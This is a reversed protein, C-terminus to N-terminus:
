YLVTGPVRIQDSIVFAVLYPIDTCAKSSSVEHGVQTALKLQMTFGSPMRTMLGLIEMVARGEVANEKGETDGTDPALIKIPKGNSDVMLPSPALELGAVTAGVVEFDYDQVWPM